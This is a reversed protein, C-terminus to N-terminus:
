PLPPLCTWPRLTHLAPTSPATLRAHARASWEVRAAAAGPRGSLIDPREVPGDVVWCCVPQARSRDSAGRWSACVGWRGRRARWLSRVPFSLSLSCVALWARVGAWHSCAPPSRVADGHWGAASRRMHVGSCCAFRPVVSVAALGPTGDGVEDQLQVCVGRRTQAAHPRRFLARSARSRLCRHPWSCSLAAAARGRWLPEARSCCLRRRRCRQGGM